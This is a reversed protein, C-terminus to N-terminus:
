REAHVDRVQLWIMVSDGPQGPPRGSVELSGPGLFFVVGPDGPTVVDCAGGGFCDGSSRAWPRALGAVPTGSSEPYGLM